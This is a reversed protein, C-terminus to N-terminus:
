DSYTEDAIKMVTQSETQYQKASRSVRENIREATHVDLSEIWITRGQCSKKKLLSGCSYKKKLEDFTGM